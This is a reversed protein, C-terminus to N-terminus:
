TVGQNRLSPTQPPQSSESPPAQSISTSTLKPLHEVAKIRPENELSGYLVGYTVLWTMSGHYLCLREQM